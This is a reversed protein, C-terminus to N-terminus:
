KQSIFKRMEFIKFLKNKENKCVRSRYHYVQRDIINRVENLENEDVM